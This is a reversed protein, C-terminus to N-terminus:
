ELRDMNALQLRGPFFTEIGLCNLTITQQPEMFFSGSLLKCGAIEVGGTL